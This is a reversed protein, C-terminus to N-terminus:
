TMVAWNKGGLPQSAWLCGTLIMVDNDEFHSQLDFLAPYWLLRSGTGRERHSPAWNAMDMSTTYPVVFRKPNERVHDLIPQIWGDSVACHCDMFFLVDGRAMDAGAQRSPTLGAHTEHRIFKLKAAEVLSRDFFTTLPVTSGDDILIIEAIQDMNSNDLISKITNVAFTDENACPLIISMTSFEARSSHRFGFLRSDFVSRAVESGPAPLGMVLAWLLLQALIIRAINRFLRKLPELYFRWENLSIILVSLGVMLLPIFPLRGDFVSYLIPVISSGAVATAVWRVTM